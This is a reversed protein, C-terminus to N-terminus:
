PCAPTSEILTPPPKIELPIVPAAVDPDPINVYLNLFDPGPPLLRYYCARSRTYNKACYDPEEPPGTDPPPPAASDKITVTAPAGAIADITPSELSVTFSEDSESVSDTTTQVSCTKPLYDGDAWLLLSNTASFDSTGATGANAKCWVGISGSSSKRRIVSLMAKGGETVTYTSAAFALQSPEEYSVTDLYVQNGSSTSSYKACENDCGTRNYRVCYTNGAFAVTLGVRRLASSPVNMMVINWQGSVLGQAAGPVKTGSSNVVFPTVTTASGGAPLYLRYTLVNGAVINDIGAGDQGTGTSLHDLYVDTTENAFTNALLLSGFRTYDTQEATPTVTLSTMAGDKVWGRATSPASTSPTPSTVDPEWDSLIKGYRGSWSRTIQEVPDSPGVGYPNGSSPRQAATDESLKQWLVYAGMKKEQVQKAMKGDFYRARTKETDPTITGQPTDDALGDARIGAEGVFLPKNLSACQTIRVQMGNYIDGPLPTSASKYDHVECMDIDSIAHLNQYNSTTSGCQGSGITGLSVLHDPDATKLEHSMDTTFESLATYAPSQSPCTGDPQDASAENVLQWWAIAAYRIIGEPTATSGHAGDWYHKAVMSAYAKFNQPYVYGDPLSGSDFALRSGLGNSYRKYFTIRKKAAQPECDTEDNVLVPIVRMGKAAAADLVRDFPYWSASSGSSGVYYSQFFWTRVLTAGAAKLDSMQQLLTSVDTTTLGSDCTYADSREATTVSTLRYSNYGVPQIVKGDLVFSTGSKSILGPGSQAECIGTVFLGLIAASFIARRARVRASTHINM